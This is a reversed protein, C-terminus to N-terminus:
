VHKNHSIGLAGSNLLDYTKSKTTSTYICHIVSASQKNSLMAMLFPYCFHEQFSFINLNSASITQTLQFARCACLARECQSVIHDICNPASITSFTCKMAMVLHENLMQKTPCIHISQVCHLDLTVSTSRAVNQSCM